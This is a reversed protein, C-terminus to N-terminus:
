YRERLALGLLVGLGLAGAVALGPNARIFDTSQATLRDAESSVKDVATQAAARAYDATERAQDKAAELVGEADHGSASKGNSPRTTESAKSM